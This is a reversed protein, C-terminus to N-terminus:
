CGHPSRAPLRSVGLLEVPDKWGSRSASCCYRSSTVRPEASSGRHLFCCGQWSISKMKVKTGLVLSCLIFKLMDWLSLAIELNFFSTYSQVCALNPACGSPLPTIEYIPFIVQSSILICTLPSKFYAIIAILERQQTSSKTYPFIKHSCWYDLGSTRPSAM